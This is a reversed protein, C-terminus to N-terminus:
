QWTASDVKWVDQEKVFNLLIEQYRVFSNQPSGVAEERQTTVSVQSTGTEEDKDKVNVTIVQTSVSYYESPPTSRDIFAQTEAAFAASMLPLVDTLNSFNAENSYSGYRTVFTKSLSVVDSSTARTEKEAELENQSVTPRTPIIEPTEEQVPSIPTQTTEDKRSFLAYFIWLLLLLLILVILVILVIRTRRSMIM